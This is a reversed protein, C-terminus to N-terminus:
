CSFDRHDLCCSHEQHADRKAHQTERGAGHRAAATAVTAAAVAPAVKAAAVEATATMEAPHMKAATVETSPMEAAAMDTARMNATTMDACSMVDTMDTAGPQAMGAMDAMGAEDMIANAACGPRSPKVAEVVDVAIPEVAVGEAAPLRPVPPAATV